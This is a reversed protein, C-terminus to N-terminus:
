LTRMEVMIRRMAKSLAQETHSAVARGTAEPDNAGNVTVNVPASMTMQTAGKAGLLKGTEEWIALSRRRKALALPIYAEGGTEPENWLRM